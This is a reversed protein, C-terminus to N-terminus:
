REDFMLRRVEDPSMIGLEQYIRLAQAREHLHADWEVEFLIHNSRGYRHTFYWRLPSPDVSDLESDFRLRPERSHGREYSAVFSWIRPLDHYSTVGFDRLDGKSARCLVATHMMKIRHARADNRSAVRPGLPRAFGEARATDAAAERVVRGFDPLELDDDARLMAWARDVDGDIAVDRYVDCAGIRERTQQYGALGVLYRALGNM